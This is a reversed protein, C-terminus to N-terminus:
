PHWFLGIWTEVSILCKKVCVLTIRLRSVSASVISHSMNDIYLCKHYLQSQCWSTFNLCLIKERIKPLCVTSPESILHWWDDTGMTPKPHIKQSLLQTFNLVAPLACHSCLLKCSHSSCLPLRFSAVLSTNKPTCNSTTWSQCSMRMPNQFVIGWYENDNNRFLVFVNDTRFRVFVGFLFM